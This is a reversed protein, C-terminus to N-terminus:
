LRIQDAAGALLGFGVTLAERGKHTFCHLAPELEHGSAVQEGFPFGVVPRDAWGLAFPAARRM